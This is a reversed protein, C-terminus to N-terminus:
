AVNYQTSIDNNKVRVERGYTFRRLVWELPGFRYQKLWWRSFLVQFTWIAAAMGLAITPTMRDFLGFALCVPVVIAAQLIYNTLSTRGLVAFTTFKLKRASLFIVSAYCSALGLRHVFGLLRFATGKIINTKGIDPLGELLSSYFQNLFWTAAGAIFGVTAIIILQRNSLKKKNQIFARGVLLGGFLLFLTGEWFFISTQYWYKVWAFNEALYNSSVNAPRQPFELGWSTWAVRLFIPLFFTIVMAIIIARNSANYFFTVLLTLIAYPAIIDGNRLILAHLSGIIFLGLLRKRYIFMSRVKDNAKNMHLVFGVTFLIAFLTYAKTDILFFFVPDLIKDIITYTEEPANGLNWFVYAILVGTIAFGRVIDLYQIRQNPLVPSSM